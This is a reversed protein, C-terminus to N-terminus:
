SELGLLILCNSIDGWSWGDGYQPYTIASTPTMPQSPMRFSRDGIIQNHPTPFSFHQTIQAVGTADSLSANTIDFLPVSTIDSTIDSSSASTIDFPSPPPSFLGMLATKVNDSDRLLLEGSGNSELNLLAKASTRYVFENVAKTFKDRVENAEESRGNCAVATDVPYINRHYDTLESISEPTPKFIVQEGQLLDVYVVYAEIHIMQYTDVPKSGDLLQLDPARQLILSCLTWIADPTSLIAKLTERLRTSSYQGKFVGIDRLIDSLWPLKVTSDLIVTPPSRPMFAAATAPLLNHSM